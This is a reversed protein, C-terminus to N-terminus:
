DNSKPSVSSLSGDRTIWWGRTYQASNHRNDGSLDDAQANLGMERLAQAFKKYYERDGYNSRIHLPRAIIEIEIGFAYSSVM